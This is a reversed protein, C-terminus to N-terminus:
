RELREDSATVGRTHQAHKDYMWWNRTNYAQQKSTLQEIRETDGM